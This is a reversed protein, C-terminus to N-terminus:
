KYEVRYRLVTKLREKPTRRFDSIYIERHAKNKILINNDKCFKKMVEFSKYEEDFSGIHMMQVCMGEGIHVIEVEDLLTNNNKKKLIEIAKKFVEEDVFEPQRIMITYVLNNKDFIEYDRAENNLDWIGELPYVTYDFYGKPIIGKKPMMKIAYSLSYLTAVKKSFEESNPNGSGKIQIFKLDQINVIEPKTKPLYYNKEKKRWEHKM